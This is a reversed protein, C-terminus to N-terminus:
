VSVSCRPSCAPSSIMWADAVKRSCVGAGTRQGNISKVGAIDAEGLEREHEMVGVVSWRGKWQVVMWDEEGLSGRRVQLLVEFWDGKGKEPSEGSKQACCCM